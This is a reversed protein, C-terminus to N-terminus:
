VTVIEDDLLQVVIAVVLTTTLGTGVVQLGGVPAIAPLLEGTVTPLGILRVDVEVPPVLWIHAPGLPNEEM